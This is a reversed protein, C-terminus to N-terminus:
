HFRALFAFIRTWPSLRRAYTCLTLTHTNMSIWQHGYINGLHCHWAFLFVGFRDSSRFAVTFIVFLCCCCRFFLRSEFSAPFFLSFTKRGDHFARKAKESRKNAKSQAPCKQSPTSTINQSCLRPNNETEWDVLRGKKWEFSSFAFITKKKANAKERKFHSFRHFRKTICWDNDNVVSINWKRHVHVNSVNAVGSKHKGADAIPENEWKSEKKMRENLTLWNKHRRRWRGRVNGNSWRCGFASGTIAPVRNSIHNIHFTIYTVSIHITSTISFWYIFRQARWSRSAACENQFRKDNETSSSFCRSHLPHIVSFSGCRKWTELNGNVVKDGKKTRCDHRFNSEFTPAQVAHVGSEVYQISLLQTWVIAFSRFLHAHVIHM